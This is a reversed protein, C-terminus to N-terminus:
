CILQYFLSNGFKENEIEILVHCLTVKMIILKGNRWADEHLIEHRSYKLRNYFHPGIDTKIKSFDNENLYAQNEFSM